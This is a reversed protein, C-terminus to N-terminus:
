TALIWAVLGEGQSQVVAVLGMALLAAIGLLIMTESALLQLIIGRRAGLKYATQMERARLRYSLFVALAIAAFAAVGVILTVADLVAKIRFIRAVLESVVDEPVIMQLPNDADLYRGRLITADRENSPVVLLGSIPYSDPDGHFHFSDINDPTIRNFEVIAASAVVDGTDADPAFVGEHGHGIGAIVWTTAVDVFVAEDDPTGSPAFVGVINLELPYVGDLDFLNQPASVLTDGPGLGLREAVTAGIVAEGLIALQRGQALVLGRFDFYDLSTGVIRAGGTEFATNLPIPVALGSDWIAEGAAMTVPNAREDSFYLTSMVLDLQSGRNGLVLPTAEARDTLTNRAGELLTQSILPVALILAAVLVLVGSRLWHFRLYALALFIANM